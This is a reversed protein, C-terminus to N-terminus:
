SAPSPVAGLVGSQRLYALIQEVCAEPSHRETDLVLEAREPAEYPASIGTFEPILGARAKKYLGKPDRQECADVSCRCYVEVFDGPPVLARNRDRDARYPSIFATLAILGADSMLKAVEGIRRINEERDEPSFGLDRNLGHRINDGDLIYTHCGQEFLAREVMQSLTSKGSASLGTFWLVVGRHRNRQERARKDVASATWTINQSKPTDM